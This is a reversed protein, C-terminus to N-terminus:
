FSRLNMKWKKNIKAEHRNISDRELVPLHLIKVNNEPDKFIDAPAEDPFRQANYHYEWRQDDRYYYGPAGPV